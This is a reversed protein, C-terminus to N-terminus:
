KRSNVTLEVLRGRERAKLIVDPTVVEDARAIVEGESGISKTVRRGLLFAYDRFLFSEDETTLKEKEERVIEEVQSEIPEALLPRPELDAKAERKAQKKDPSIASRKRFLIRDHCPARLVVARKGFAVVRDPSIEKEDAILSAITGNTEDFLLDRLVGLCIGSTDFVKAGLPCEAATSERLACVDRVVLADGEGLLRRLPLMQGDDREESSVKYGRIKSLKGDTYANTVIGAIVGQCAAVIEKSLIDTIRKM